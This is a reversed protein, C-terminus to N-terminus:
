RKVLCLVYQAGTDFAWLDDLPGEEMTIGM